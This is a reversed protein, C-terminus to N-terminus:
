HRSPPASSVLGSSDLARRVAELFQPDVSGIRSSRALPRGAGDLLVLVSSHNFSGNDLKRYAIDLMASLRRVDGPATRALMWRGTDLRHEVAVRQLVRRSDNQPDFTVMLVDLKARQTPTLKRDITRITDITLPCAMPCSSYFMTVIRVRGHTQSFSTRRGDQGELLLDSNYRGEGPLACRFGVNVTTSNAKLSSLMALRMMVPYNERDEVSLAGSGCFKLLDPDGQDRNDPSIFLANFDDVWEWILGHLDHLGYLNPTDRGVPSLGGSSPTSYWALIRQQWARDHRADPVHENAAAALEM